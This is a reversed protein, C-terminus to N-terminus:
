QFLNRYAFDPFNEIKLGFPRSQKLALPRNPEESLPTTPPSNEKDHGDDLFIPSRVSGLKGIKEFTTPSTPNDIGPRFVADIELQLNAWLVEIDDLDSLKYGRTDM